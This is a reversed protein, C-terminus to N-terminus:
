YPGLWHALCGNLSFRTWIPADTRSSNQECASNSVCVSVCVCLCVSTFIYGRWSKTSTYHYHYYQVSYLGKISAMKISKINNNVSAKLSIHLFSRPDGHQIKFQIPSQIILKWLDLINSLSMINEHVPGKVVNYM